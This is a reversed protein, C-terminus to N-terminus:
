AGLPRVCLQVAVPYNNEAAVFALLATALENYALVDGPTALHPPGDTRADTFTSNGAVNAFVDPIEAKDDTMLHVLARLQEMRPRIRQDVFSQVQQNTATAM